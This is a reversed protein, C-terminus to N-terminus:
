TLSKGPTTTPLSPIAYQKAYARKVDIEKWSLIPHHSEGAQNSARRQSEIANLEGQILLDDTLLGLNDDHRHRGEHALDGAPYPSSMKVTLTNNQPQYINQNGLQVHLEPRGPHQREHDEIRSFIENVEPARMRQAEVHQQAAKSAYSISRKQTYLLSSFQSTSSAFRSSAFRSGNGLMPALEMGAQRALFVM